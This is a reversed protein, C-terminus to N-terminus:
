CSQSLRIHPDEKGLYSKPIYEKHNLALIGIIEAESDKRPLVLLNRVLFCNLSPLSREKGRVEVLNAEDVANGSGCGFFCMICEIAKACGRLAVGAELRM